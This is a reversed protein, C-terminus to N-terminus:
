KKERGGIRLNLVVHEVHRGAALTVLVVPANGREVLDVTKIFEDMNATGHEALKLIVHGEEIVNRGFQESTAAPSGPIVQKVLVGDRADLNRNYWFEDTIETVIIGIKEARFERPKPEEVFKASLEVPAGARLVSFRIERGIDPKLLKEFEGLAQQAVKTIPVGDVARVVDFTKLGAQDAPSGRYVRRVTVGEKSLGVALAYDENLIDYTMGLWPKKKETTPQEGGTLKALMRDLEEKIEDTLVTRGRGHQLGIVEGNLNAFTTGGPPYYATTRVEDLLGFQTKGKVQAIEIFKEFAQDKGSATVGVLMDGLQIERSLGFTAPLLEAPPAQIQALTIGMKDNSDCFKAEFEDRGIWVRIRTIQDPKLDAPFLLYGNPAVVVASTMTTGARYARRDGETEESAARLFVEAFVVSPKLKEAASTIGKQFARIVATSDLEAPKSAAAKCASLFATAAIFVVVIIKARHM